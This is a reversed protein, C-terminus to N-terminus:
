TIGDSIMCEFVIVVVETSIIDEIGTIGTIPAKYWLLIDDTNDRMNSIGYIGVRPSESIFSCKLMYSLYYIAWYRKTFKPSHFIYCTTICYIKLHKTRM